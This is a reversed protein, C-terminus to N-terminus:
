FAKQPIKAGGRGDSLGLRSIRLAGRHNLRVDIPREQGREGVDDAKVAVHGLPAFDYLRLGVPQHVLELGKWLGLRQKHSQVVREIRGVIMVGAANAHFPQDLLRRRVGTTPRVHDEGTVHVIILAHGLHFRISCNQRLEHRSSAAIMVKVVDHLDVALFHNRRDIKGVILFVIIDDSQFFVGVVMVAKQPQFETGVGYRSAIVGHRTGLLRPAAAILEDVIELVSQFFRWYRGFM